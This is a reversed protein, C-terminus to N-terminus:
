AKSAGELRQNTPSLKLVKRSWRKSVGRQGGKKQLDIVKKEELDAIFDVQGNVVYGIVHGNFCRIEEIEVKDTRHRTLPTNCKKCRCM